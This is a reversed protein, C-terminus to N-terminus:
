GRIEDSIGEPTEIEMIRHTNRYDQYWLNGMFALFLIACLGVICKSKRSMM